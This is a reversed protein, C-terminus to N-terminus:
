ASSLALTAAHPTWCASEHTKQLVRCFSLVMFILRITALTSVGVGAAAL